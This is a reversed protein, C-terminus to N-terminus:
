KLELLALTRKTGLIAIEKHILFYQSFAERQAEITFFINETRDRNSALEVVMPDFRDIFEVILYRKTCVSMLLAIQSLSVSKGIALHHILALALTADAQAGLRKILGGYEQGMWGRGKSIDDLGACVTYIKSKSTLRNRLRAIAPIDADVAIVGSKAISAAIFSFEGQNCGLDAVWNPEIKELWGSVIERKADLAVTKYHSRTQEYTSWMSLHPEHHLGALQWRLFDILGKHLPKESKKTATSNADNASFNVNASQLLALGIRSSWRKAGLLVRASNLTMGDLGTKFVDAPEIGRHKSAALPFVFHRLFQGYAWWQRRQIPQMSFHDCFEARECEFLINFASADKLEHGEDLLAEAVDLTVIAAQLLQNHTWEWPYTVFGVKQARILDRDEFEFPTLMGRSVLKAATPTDLFHPVPLPEYAHRHIFDSKVDVWGIPDRM